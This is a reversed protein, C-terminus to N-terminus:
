IVIVAIPFWNISYNYGNNTNTTSYNNNGNWKQNNIWPSVPVWISVFEYVRLNFHRVLLLYWNMKSPSFNRKWIWLFVFFFHLTLVLFMMNPPLSASMPIASLSVRVTVFVPFTLFKEIESKSSSRQMESMRNLITIFGRSNRRSLTIHVGDSETEIWRITNM